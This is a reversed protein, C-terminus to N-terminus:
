AHAHRPLLLALCIGKRLDGLKAKEETLSAQEVPDLWQDQGAKAIRGQALIWDHPPQSGDTEALVHRHRLSETLLVQLENEGDEERLLLLHGAGQAARSLLSLTCRMIRGSPCTGKELVQRQPLGQKHCNAVEEEPVGIHHLRPRPAEIGRQAGRPLCAVGGSLHAECREQHQGVQHQVVHHLRPSNEEDPRKPESRACVIGGRPHRPNKELLKGLAAGVDDVVEKWLDDCPQGFVLAAGPRHLTAGLATHLVDHLEDLLLLMNIPKDLLEGHAQLLSRVHCAISSLDQGGGLGGLGDVLRRIDGHIAVNRAVGRRALRTLCNLAQRVGEAGHGVRVPTNQM